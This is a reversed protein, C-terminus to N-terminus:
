RGPERESAPLATVSGLWKQASRTWIQQRPILSDRQRVTGTRIGYPAQPDDASTAYIPSGCTGCFAQARRAGSEAVKVYIKPEGSLIRFKDRAAPISTRFAAGTLQQCDTCHCISTKEPDVEAEYAIAGCHCSGDIKM